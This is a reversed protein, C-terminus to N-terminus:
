RRRWIKTLNVNKLFTYLNLKILILKVLIRIDFKYKIAEQFCKCTEKYMGNEIYIEGYTKFEGWKISKKYKKLEDETLMNFIKSYVMKTGQIRRTYSSSISENGNRYVKVLPKQITTFSYNRAIRIWMDYDQRAPMKEDFMGSKELCEKKIVVCSTPSVRDLIIENYFINGKKGNCNVKIKIM